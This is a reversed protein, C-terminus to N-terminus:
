SATQKEAVLTPKMRTLRCFQLWLVQWSVMCTDRAVLATSSCSSSRICCAKDDCRSPTFGSLTGDACPRWSSASSGSEGLAIVLVWAVIGTVKGLPGPVRCWKEDCCGEVVGSTSFAPPTAALPMVTAAASWRVLALPSLQMWAVVCFALQRADSPRWYLKHTSGPSYHWWQQRAAKAVVTHKQVYVCVATPGQTTNSIRQLGGRPWCTDGVVSGRQCHTAWTGGQWM